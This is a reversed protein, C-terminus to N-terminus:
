RTVIKKWNVERPNICMVPIQSTNFIIDEDYSGLIFSLGKSPNTMIMILESDITTAYDIVQKEFGSSREAVKIDYKIGNEDFHKTIMGVAKDIASGPLQYIHIKAKFEQAIYAAWKTKDWPGFDSTIPLVIDKFNDFARKQVVIVPVRSSTIVKLAFSGTLKQMGVKGHTGMYILNAGLDKAVEAITSFISGKKAITNVEIGFNDKAKQALLDLKEKATNDDTKETIHLLVMKYGLHKAAKSALNIANNGVETFDTPVLLINNMKTEM